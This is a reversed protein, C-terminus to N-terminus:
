KRSAAVFMGRSLWRCLHKKSRPTPRSFRGTEPTTPPSLSSSFGLPPSFMPYSASTLPQWGPTQLDTFTSRSTESWQVTANVLLWCGLIFCFTKKFFFISNIRPFFFHGFHFESALFLFSGQHRLAFALFSDLHSSNWAWVTMKAAAKQSMWLRAQRRGVEHDCRM